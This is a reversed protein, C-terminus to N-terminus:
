KCYSEIALVNLYSSAGGTDATIAIEIAEQYEGKLRQDDFCLEVLGSIPLTLVVDSGVTVTLELVTTLDDVGAYIRDIVWQRDDTSAPLTVVAQTNAAPHHSYWEQGNSDVHSDM